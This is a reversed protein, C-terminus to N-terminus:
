VATLVLGVTKACVDQSSVTTTRKLITLVTAAVTIQAGTKASKLNVITGKGALKAIVSEMSAPAMFLATRTVSSMSANSVVLVKQANVCPCALLMVLVNGADTVTLLIVYVKPAINAKGVLIVLVSVKLAREMTVARVSNQNRVALVLGAKTVTVVKKRLVKISCHTMWAFVTVTLTVNTPANRLKANMVWGIKTATVSRTSAFVMNHATVPAPLIKANTVLFGWPALVCTNLKAEMLKLLLVKVQPVLRNTLWRLSPVTLM